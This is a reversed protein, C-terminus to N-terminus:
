KATRTQAFLTDYVLYSHNRTIYGTSWVPDLVRLDAQAVFQLTQQDKQARVSPAGLMVTAAAVAGQVAERRSINIM